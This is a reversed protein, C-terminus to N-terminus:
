WISRWFTWWQILDELFPVFNFNLTDLLQITTLWHKPCSNLLKKLSIANEQSIRIGKPRTIISRKDIKIPINYPPLLARFYKNNNSGKIARTKNKSFKKLLKMNLCQVLIISCDRFTSFHEKWTCLYKHVSEFVEKNEKQRNFVWYATQLSFFFKGYRDFCKWIM